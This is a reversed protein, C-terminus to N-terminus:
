MIGPVPGRLSPLFFRASIAAKVPPPATMAQTTSAAVRKLAHSHTGMAAPRATMMAMATAPMTVLFRGIRDAM